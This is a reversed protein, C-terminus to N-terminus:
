RLCRGRAAGPLAAAATGRGRVEKRKQGAAGPGGWGALLLLLLLALVPLAAMVAGSRRGAGMPLSRCVPVAAGGVRKRNAAAGARSERNASVTGLGPQPCGILSLCAPPAGNACDWGSRATGRPGAAPPPGPGTRRGCDPRTAATGSGCGRM